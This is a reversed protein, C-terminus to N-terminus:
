KIGGTEHREAEPTHQPQNHEHGYLRGEIDKM